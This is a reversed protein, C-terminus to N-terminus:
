TREPVADPYVGLIVAETDDGILEYVITYPLRPVNIERTGAERGPHGFYPHARLHEICAHIQHEIQAGHRRNRALWYSRITFLNARARLTYRLRM